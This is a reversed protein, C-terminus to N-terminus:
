LKLSSAKIVFDLSEKVMTDPLVSNGFMKATDIVWGPFDERSDKSTYVFLASYLKRPPDQDFSHGQDIRGVLLYSGDSDKFSVVSDSSTGDSWNLRSDERESTPHLESLHNIIADYDLAPANLQFKHFYIM